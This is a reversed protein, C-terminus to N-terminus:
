ACSKGNFLQADFDEVAVGGIKVSSDMEEKIKLWVRMAKDINYDLFILKLFPFRQM